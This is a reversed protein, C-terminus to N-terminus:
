SSFVPPINPTDHYRLVGDVPNEVMGESGLDQENMVKRKKKEREREREGDGDNERKRLSEL